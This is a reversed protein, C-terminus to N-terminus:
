KSLLSHISLLTQRAATEPDPLPLIEASLYGKYSIERLAAIIEEAPTHGFGM